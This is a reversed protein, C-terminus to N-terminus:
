QNEKLLHCKTQDEKLKQHCGGEYMAKGEELTHRTTTVGVHKADELIETALEKCQDYKRQAENMCATYTDAKAISCCVMLAFFLAKM